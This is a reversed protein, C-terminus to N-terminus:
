PENGGGRKPPHLAVDYHDSISALARRIDGAMQYPDSM